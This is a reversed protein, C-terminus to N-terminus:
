FILCSTKEDGIKELNDGDIVGVLIMLGEQIQGVVNGDVKVCADKTRQVDEPFSSEQIDVRKIFVNNKM